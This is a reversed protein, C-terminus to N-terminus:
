HMAFTMLALSLGMTLHEGRLLRSGPGRRMRDVALATWVLYATVATRLIADIVTDHTPMHGMSGGTTEAVHLHLLVVIAMLLGGASRHRDVTPEHSRLSAGVLATSLGVLLLAGVYLPGVAETLSMGTMLAVMAVALGRALRSAPSVPALCCSASVTSSGIMVLEPLALTM